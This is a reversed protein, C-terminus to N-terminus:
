GHDQTRSDRIDNRVLPVGEYEADLWCDDVHFSSLMPKFFDLEIAVRAFYGKNEISINIDVKITRGVVNGLEWVIADHYYDLPLDLFSDVGSGKGSNSNYGSFISVVITSLSCPRYDVM